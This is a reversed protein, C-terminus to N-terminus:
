GIVGLVLTVEERLAADAFPKTLLPYDPYRAKAEGASGTLFIVPITKQSCISAIADIGSGQSLRVDCTILDPCQRLASKIAGAETTEFAISTFGCDRLVMEIAMAILSEDEVILAHM